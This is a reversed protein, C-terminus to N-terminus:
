KKLYERLHKLASDAQNVALHLDEDKAKGSHVASVVERAKERGARAQAILDDLQQRAKESMDAGRRKAEEVLDALESTINKLQREAQDIGTQAAHKIDARTEKGSKPATLLGAVYGVAAALGVAMAAKKLTKKM